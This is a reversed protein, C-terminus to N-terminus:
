QFTSGLILQVAGQDSNTKYSGILIESIGDGDMDDLGSVNIGTEHGGGDGSLFVEATSFSNTGTM